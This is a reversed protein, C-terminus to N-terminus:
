SKKAVKKWDNDGPGPQTITEELTKTFTRDQQPVVEWNESEQYALETDLYDYIKTPTITVPNNGNEGNEYYEQTQYDKESENKITIRYQIEINAGQILENDLELKVTGNSTATNGTKLPGM